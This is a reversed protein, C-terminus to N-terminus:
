LNKHWEITKRIGEEMDTSPQYGLNKSAKEIDPRRRVPDDKPLPRFVIESESKTAKRTKEALELMTIEKTNGLNYVEGSKGLFITRFIGVIMDTVYCLSRTQRGDGFVTVPEGRLCQSIFTCLARGDNLRPGYTNFIRNIRIELGRERHYNIIM